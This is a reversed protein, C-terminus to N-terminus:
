EGAAPNIIVRLKGSDDKVTIKGTKYVVTNGNDSQYAIPYSQKLDEIFSKNIYTQGDLVIFPDPM